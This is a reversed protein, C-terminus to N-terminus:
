AEVDWAEGRARAEQWAEHIEQVSANSAMAWEKTKTRKQSKDFFIRVLATAKEKTM